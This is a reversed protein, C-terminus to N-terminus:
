APRVCEPQLDFAALMDFSRVARSRAGFSCPHSDGEEGGTPGIGKARQLSEGGLMLNHRDHSRPVRGRRPLSGSSTECPTQSEPMTIIDPLPASGPLDCGHLGVPAPLGGHRGLQTGQSGIQHADGRKGPQQMPIQERNRTQSHEVKM